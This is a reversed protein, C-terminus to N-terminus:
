LSPIKKEYIICKYGMLFRETDRCTRYRKRSDALKEIFNYVRDAFKEATAPLGESEIYWSIAAISEVVYEKITIKRSVM